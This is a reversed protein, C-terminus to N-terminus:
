SPQATLVPAARRSVAPKAARPPLVCKDGIGPFAVLVDDMTGLHSYGSQTVDTVAVGLQRALVEHEFDAPEMSEYARILAEDSHADVGTHIAATLGALHRRSVRWLTSGEAVTFLTHWFAQKELLRRALQEHPKAAFDAVSWVGRSITRGPVIWCADEKASGATVGLLTIPAMGLTARAHLVGDRLAAPQSFVQATPVVVVDAMPDKALLLALPLLLSAATGCNRPEGILTIGPFTALQRGAVGLSASPVVVAIRENPVIPRIHDVAQQLLSRKDASFSAFQKPIPQGELAQTLSALRSGDGAALVIAWFHAM